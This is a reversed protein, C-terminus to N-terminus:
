RPFFIGQEKSQESGKWPEPMEELHSSRVSSVRSHEWWVLVGPLVASDAGSQTDARRTGEASPILLM